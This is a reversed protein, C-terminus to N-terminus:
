PEMTAYVAFHIKLRGIMYMYLTAGLGEVLWQILGANCNLGGYSFYSFLTRCSKGGKRITCRLRGDRGASVDAINVWRLESGHHFYPVDVEYEEVTNRRMFPIAPGERMRPLHPALWVVAWYIRGVVM